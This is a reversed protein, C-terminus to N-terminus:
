RFRSGCYIIEDFHGARSAVADDEQVEADGPEAVIVNPVRAENKPRHEEDEHDPEKPGEDQTEIEVPKSPVNM